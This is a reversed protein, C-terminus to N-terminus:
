RRNLRRYISKNKKYIELFVGFLEDYLKGRSEDPEFERSIKVLGPIEDFTIHGLAAAAIFAAGRANAELPDAAQRIRRKLVDAFIGCWLDSRAGGGVITLPDLRRDVFKEVYKLAWRNNLAVGEM